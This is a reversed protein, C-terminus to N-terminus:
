HEQLYEIMSQLTQANDGVEGLAINCSKCLLGRVKGTKHDHDCAFMEWRGGPKDTGCTACVGNQEVLMRDYDDITIGYMRKLHRDRTPRPDDAYSKNVRSRCCVKCEYSWASPGDKNKRIKYYDEYLNKTEGCTRCDRHM